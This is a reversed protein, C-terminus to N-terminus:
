PFRIRESHAVMITSKSASGMPTIRAEDLSSGSEILEDKLNYTRVQTIQQEGVFM